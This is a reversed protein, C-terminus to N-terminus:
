GSAPAGPEPHLRPDGPQYGAALLDRDARAEREADTRAPPGLAADATAQALLATLQAWTAATGEGTVRGSAGDVQVFYPAGPVGYDSWAATSMVVPVRPPALERIKSESEESASRTVIVTRAGGPLREAGREAFAHWFNACTICGTTLFALVTDHQAGAVGVVV